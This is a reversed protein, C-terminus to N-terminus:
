PLNVMLFAFKAVKVKVKLTREVQNPLIKVTIKSSKLEFSCCDLLSGAVSLARSTRSGTVDSCSIGDDASPM